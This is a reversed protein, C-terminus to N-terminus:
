TVLREVHRPDVCMWVFLTRSSTDLSYNDMGTNHQVYFIDVIVVAVVVWIEDLIPM